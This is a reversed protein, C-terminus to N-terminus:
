HRNCIYCANPLILSIKIQDTEENFNWTTSSCFKETYKWILRPISYQFFFFFILDNQGQISTARTAWDTSRTAKLWLTWPELGQEPTVCKSKKKKKKNRRNDSSWRMQLRNAYSLLLLFFIFFFSSYQCTTMTRKRKRSKEGGTKKRRRKRRHWELGLWSCLRWKGRERERLWHTFLYSSVRGPM